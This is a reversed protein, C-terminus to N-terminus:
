PSPLRAILNKKVTEKLSSIRITVIMMRLLTSVIMLARVQKGASGWWHCQHTMSATLKQFRFESARESLNAGKSCLQPVKEVVQSKLM